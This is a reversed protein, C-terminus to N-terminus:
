PGSGASIGLLAGLLEEDKQRWVEGISAGSLARTVARMASGIPVDSEDEISPMLAAFVAMRSLPTERDRRLIAWHAVPFRSGQLEPGPAPADGDADIRRLAEEDVGITPEPVVVEGSTPDLHVFAPDLVQVGHDRLAYEIEEVRPLLDPPLLIAEGGSVLVVQRLRFLDSGEGAHRAISARLARIVRSRHITRVVQCDSRYLIQFPRVGEDASPDEFRVSFNPEPEPTDVLFSGFSSM